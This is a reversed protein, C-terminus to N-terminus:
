TLNRDRLAAAKCIRHTFCCFQVNHVYRCCFLTFFLSFVSFTPSLIHIHMFEKKIMRSPILSTILMFTHLTHHPINTYVKTRWARLVVMRPRLKLWTLALSPWSNRNVDLAYAFCCALNIRPLALTFHLKYIRKNKINRKRVKEM